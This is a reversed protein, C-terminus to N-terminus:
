VGMNVSVAAGVGSILTVEARVYRWASATSFGDSASDTGTLTIVGLATTCWNQAFFGGQVSGASTATANASMVLTNPNTVSLVTTGEPVGAVEVQAGVLEQTFDGNPSVLNPSGNTTTVAAGPATRGGLVYGRGTNDDNSVRLTVTASVAGTGRIMAQFASYVAEKYLPQSNQNTTTSTSQAPPIGFAFLRPQEGAKLRVNACSM